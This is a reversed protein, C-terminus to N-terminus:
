NFHKPNGPVAAVDSTKQKQKKTKKPPLAVVEGQIM